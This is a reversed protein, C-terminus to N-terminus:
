DGLGSEWESVHVNIRSIEGLAGALAGDIAQIKPQIVKQWDPAAYLGSMTKARFMDHLNTFEVLSLDASWDFYSGTENTTTFRPDACLVEADWWRAWICLAADSADTTGYFSITVSKAAM